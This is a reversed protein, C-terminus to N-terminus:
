EAGGDAVAECPGADPGADPCSGLVVLLGGTGSCGALLLLFILLRRV